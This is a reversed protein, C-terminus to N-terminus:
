SSGTGPAPLKQNEPRHASRITEMLEEIKRPYHMASARSHLENPCPSPAPSAPPKGAPSRLILISHCASFLICILLVLCAPKSQLPLEPQARSDAPASLPLPSLSQSFSCLHEGQHGRM